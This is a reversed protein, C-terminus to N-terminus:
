NHVALKDQSKQQKQSEALSKSRSKGYKNDIRRNLCQKTLVNLEIEAM